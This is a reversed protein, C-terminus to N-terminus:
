DLKMEVRIDYATAIDNPCTATIYSTEGDPIDPFLTEVRDIVTGDKKLFVLYIIYSELDKGLNNDVQASFSAMDGSSEIRIDTLLLDNFEIGKALKESTNIKFGDDRIESNSTDTMDITSEFDGIALDGDRTSQNNNKKSNKVIAIVSIVLIAIVIVAIIAIIIKKNDLKKSKM